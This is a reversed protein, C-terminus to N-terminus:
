FFILLQVPNSIALKGTLSFDGALFAHNVQVGALATFGPAVTFGASARGQADLVGASNPLVSSNPNAASFLLYFDLNLPLTGIGLSLGPVAGSTSGLVLYPEGAFAEGADLSLPATGGASSSLILTPSTLEASATLAVDDILHGDFGLEENDRQRFIIQLPALGLGANKAIQVVDISRESWNAPAVLHSQALVESVGDSLYVGDEVNSEDNTGRLWYTLLAGNLGEADM